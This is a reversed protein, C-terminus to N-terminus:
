YQETENVKKQLENIREEAQREKEIVRDEIKIFEDQYSNVLRLNLRHKLKNYIKEVEYNNINEERSLKEIARFMSNEEEILMNLDSTYLEIANSLETEKKKRTLSVKVTNYLSDSEDIFPNIKKANLEAIEEWKSIRRNVIRIYEDLANVVNENPLITFTNEYPQLSAVRYGNRVLYFPSPFMDGDWEITFPSIEFSEIIARQTMPYQWKQYSLLMSEDVEELLNPIIYRDYQLEDFLMLPDETFRKIESEKEEIKKRRNYLTKLVRDQM